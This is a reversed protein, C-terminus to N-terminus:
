LTGSSVRQTNASLTTRQTATTMMGGSCSTGVGTQCPLIGTPCSWVGGRAVPHRTGIGTGLCYLCNPVPDIDIGVMWLWELSVM